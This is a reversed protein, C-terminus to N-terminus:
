IKSEGKFVKALDTTAKIFFREVDDTDATKSSLKQIMADIDDNVVSVAEHGAGEPVYPLIKKYLVSVPKLIELAGDLDTHDFLALYNLLEDVHRRAQESVVSNRVAILM